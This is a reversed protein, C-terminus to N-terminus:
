SIAYKKTIRYLTIGALIEIGVIIIHIIFDGIPAIPANTLPFLPDIFTEQTERLINILFLLLFYRPNQSLLIVISIAAMTFTRGAYEYILNMDPVGDITIGSKLVASHDFYFQYAQQLLILNLLVQVINIWLPIKTKM